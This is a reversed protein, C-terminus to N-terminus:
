LGLEEDTIKYRARQNEPVQRLLDRAQDAYPSGPYEKMVERCIRVGQTYTLGPKAGLKMFLDRAAGVKKEAMIADEESLERPQPRPTQQVFAPVPTQVAPLANSVSNSDAVAADGIGEPVALQLLDGGLFKTLIMPAIFGMVPGAYRITGSSDAMMLIPDEPSVSGLEPFSMATGDAVLVQAWAQPQKLIEDVVAHRHAASDLNVALFKVQGGDGLGERFLKGFAATPTRENAQGMMGGEYFGGFGMPPQMPMPPQVAGPGQNPENSVAAKKTEFKQWFLVCLAEEGPQYGFTTGNLCHLQLAEVKKDIAEALFRSLDFDLKGPQIQSAPDQPNGMMMGPAEMMGGPQRNRQPARVPKRPRPLMPKMDAVLAMAVQTAWIDGSPMSQKDATDLKWAKVANAHATEMQGSFYSLWSQLLFYQAKQKREADQKDDMKLFHRKTENVLLQAESIEKQTPNKAENVQTLLADLTPGIKNAAEMIKQDPMQEAGPDAQAQCPMAFLGLLLLGSWIWM